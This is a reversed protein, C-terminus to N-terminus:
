KKSTDEKEDSKDGDTKQESEGETKTSDANETPRKILDHINSESYDDNHDVVSKFLNAIIGVRQCVNYLLNEFEAEPNKTGSIEKGYYQGRTFYYLKKAVSSSEATFVDEVSKIIENDFNSTFHLASKCREIEAKATNKAADTLKKKNLIDTNKAISYTCYWNVLMKVIISIEDDTFACEGKNTFIHRADLFAGVPCKENVVTKVMAYGLTEYILTPESFTAMDTMWDGITRSDLTKKKEEKETGNLSEIECYRYDKVVKIASLLNKAIGNKMDDRKSLLYTVAAAVDDNSKFKTPDLEPANESAKAAEKLVRKKTDEPIMDPKFELQLQGDNPKSTIQPLALKDVAPLEVGFTKALSQIQPYASNKILLAFPTNTSVVQQIVTTVILADAVTNMGDLFPQGFKQVTEAKNEVYRRQILNALTVTSDPSLGGDSKKSDELISKLFKSTPTDEQPSMVVVSTTEEKTAPPAPVTKVTTKKEEKLETSAAAAANKKENKVEANAVTTTKTAQAKVGGKNKKSM